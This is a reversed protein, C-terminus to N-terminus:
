RNVRNMYALEKGNKCQWYMECKDEVNKDRMDIYSQYYDEADAIYRFCTMRRPCDSRRCMAIDVM